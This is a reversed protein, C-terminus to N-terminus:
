CNSARIQETIGKVVGMGTARHEKQKVDCGTSRSTNKRACKKEEEEEEQHAM